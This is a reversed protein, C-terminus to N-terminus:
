LDVTVGLEIGWDRHHGGRWDPGLPVVVQAWSVADGFRTMAGAIGDVQWGGSQAKRKELEARVGGRLGFSELPQWQAFGSLQTRTARESADLPTALLAHLQISIPRGFWAYRAGVLADWSRSGLQLDSPVRTPRTGTPMEM